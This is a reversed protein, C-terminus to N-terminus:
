YIKFFYINSVKKESSAGAVGKGAPDSNVVAVLEENGDNDVDKIQYDAVYGKVPRTKWSTVLKNEDWVLCHIEGKEYTRTRSFFGTAAENKNVIVQLTGDGNLDKILIRGPLYVRRTSFNQKRTDYFNITGGFRDGSKWQVKGDKSLITLHGSEDLSITDPKGKERIEATAAGFISTKRRFDMEPGKEFSAGERIMRYVPDAPLGESSRQQGLLVPGEKPLAWVRFFWNEKLPIKKFGGAEYELIFPRLDDGVVSTVIIKAHGDRNLDAVDLTLFNNENREETKHILKMKDGDYKFIYLSSTGMVILENKKDGDVDGIDLGKIEFEFTQSKRYDMSGRSFTRRGLVKYGTDQGFNGIKGIVDDIGNLQTHVSLASKEETINVLCADLSVYDGIKTISGFVIYDVGIKKGIQIAEAEDLRVPKEEYLAQEVISQGLVVVREEVTIRSTLIDNIGHRLYDLNEQSHITFPLVAVKYVKNPDRNQSFSSCPLILISVFFLSLLMPRFKM